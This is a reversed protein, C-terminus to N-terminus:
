VIGARAQLYRAMRPDHGGGCSAAYAAVEERVREPAKGTVTVQTSAGAARFNVSLRFATKAFGFNLIKSTVSHERAFVLSDYSEDAVRFRHDDLFAPPEDRWFARVEAPDGPVTFQITIEDAM